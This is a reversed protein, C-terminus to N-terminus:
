DVVPPKDFGRHRLKPWIVGEGAEYEGIRRAAALAGSDAKTPEPTAPSPAQAAAGTGALPEV